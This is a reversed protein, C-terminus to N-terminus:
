IICNYQETLIPYPKNKLVILEEENLNFKRLGDDTYTLLVRLEDKQDASDKKRPYKSKRWYVEVLRFTYFSEEEGFYDLWSLATEFNTFNWVEDDTEYIRIDDSGKDCRIQYVKTKRKAYGNKGTMIDYDELNGYHM